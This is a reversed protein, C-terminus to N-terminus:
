LSSRCCLTSKMKTAGPDWLSADLETSLPIATLQDLHLQSKDREGELSVLLPTDLRLEPEAVTPAQGGNFASKFVTYNRRKRSM